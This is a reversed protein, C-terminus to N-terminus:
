FTLGHKEKRRRMEGLTNNVIPNVIGRVEDKGPLILNAYVIEVPNISLRSNSASVMIPVMTSLGDTIPSYLNGKIASWAARGVANMDDGTFFTVPVPGFHWSHGSWSRGKEGTYKQVTVCKDLPLRAAAVLGDGTPTLFGGAPVVGLKAASGVQLDLDVPTDLWRAYIGDNIYSTPLCSLIAAAVTDQFGGGGSVTVTVTAPLIYGTGASTITFGTITGLSSVVATATAGSGGASDTITVIPQTLPSYGSGPTAPVLGTIGGGGITIGGAVVTAQVIAGNGQVLSVKQAQQNSVPNCGAQPAPGYDFTLIMPHYVTLGNGAGTDKVRGKMRIRLFKYSPKTIDQVVYKSPLQAAGVLNSIGLYVMVLSAVIFLTPIVTLM